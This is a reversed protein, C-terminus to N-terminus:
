GKDEIPAAQASVVPGDEWGARTSRIDTKDHKTKCVNM